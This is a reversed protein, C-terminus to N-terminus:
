TEKLAYANQEHQSPRTEKPEEIDEPEQLREEEEEV